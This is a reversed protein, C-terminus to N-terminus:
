SYNKITCLTTFYISTLKPSTRTENKLNPLTFIRGPVLQHSLVSIHGGASNSTCIVGKGSGQRFIQTSLEKIRKAQLPAQVRSSSSNNVDEEVAGEVAVEGGAQGTSPM